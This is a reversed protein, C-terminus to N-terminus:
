GLAENKKKVRYLFCIMFLGLVTCVIGSRLGPTFYKLEVEHCGEKLVIAIFGYDARLIDTEEGDVYASWGASYPVSLFLIRDKSLEINGTIRNNKVSIDELVESRRKKNLEEVAGTDITYVHINQMRRLGSKM